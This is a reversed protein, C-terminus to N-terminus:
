TCNFRHGDRLYSFFTESKLKLVQLNNSKDIDFNYQEIASNVDFPNDGFVTKVLAFTIIPVRVFRNLRAKEPIKNESFTLEM